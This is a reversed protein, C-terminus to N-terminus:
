SFLQNLVSLSKPEKYNQLHLQYYQLLLNLVRVSLRQQKTLKIRNMTDFEIGFFQKFHDVTEGSLCLPDIRSPMFVGEELHFCEQNVEHDDPYFGLHGSLQLLFLIHFNAVEENVDLWLFSNELFDFLSTNQEEEQIAMQLIESLFMVLGQKVLNTHLSTFSHLLRAEKLYELTGKDKHQAQLELLTLPLFLAKKLKGKKSKLISRLLYSKLGAERTFCRVILDAEGYKLSSIVLAPTTIQM